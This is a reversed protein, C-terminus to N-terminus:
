YVTKEIKNYKLFVYIDLFIVLIKGYIPVKRAKHDGLVGISIIYM